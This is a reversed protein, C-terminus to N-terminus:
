SIKAQKRLWALLVGYVPLFLVFSTIIKFVVDVSAIELWHTSMFPDDSYAFAAWFFTYTDLINSFITSIAPAVWWLETLKERVRQFISVDLLQSALYALASAFGIMPTAIYSSIIIAPIFALAVVGRATYKDTLRVTLDTAVVILPFTFMGWTFQLDTGYLTGGFQVAWNSLAIIFLHLIVLKALLIRNVNEFNFYQKLM